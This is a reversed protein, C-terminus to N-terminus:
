PPVQQDSALGLSFEYVHKNRRERAGLGKEVMKEMALTVALPLIWLLAWCVPKLRIITSTLPATNTGPLRVSGVSHPMTLSPTVAKLGSKEVSTPRQARVSQPAKPATM